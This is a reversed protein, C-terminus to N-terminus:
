GQSNAVKRARRKGRPKARPKRRGVPKGDTDAPTEVGGAHGQRRDRGMPRGPRYASLDELCQKIQGELVEERRAANLGELEPAIKRALALLNAKANAVLDDVVTAIVSVEALDLRRVDNEMRTKEAQESALRTRARDLEMREFNNEFYWAVCQSLDYGGSHGRGKSGPTEVPMGNRTWDHITKETVCFIGALAATTFSETM